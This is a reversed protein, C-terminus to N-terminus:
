TSCGKSRLIAALETLPIHPSIFGPPVGGPGRAAPMYLVLDDGDLAWAQYDDALGGEPHDPEFREVQFPSGRVAQQVLPHAIPPIAKLPDVGPCLLDALQLQRSSDFTFTTIAANPHPMSAFWYDQHFVVTKTAMAHTLVQSTLTADGNGLDDVEGHDEFFKEVFSTLVPGAPPNDVLDVPYAATVQLHAGSVDRTLTCHGAKVDWVGHVRSCLRNTAATASTPSPGASHEPSQCGCVVLATAVVFALRSRLM